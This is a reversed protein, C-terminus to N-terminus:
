GNKKFPTITMHELVYFRNMSVVNAVTLIHSPIKEVHFVILGVRDNMIIFSDGHSYALIEKGILRISNIIAQKIDEDLHFNPSFRLIWELDDISFRFM